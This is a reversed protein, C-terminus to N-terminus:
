NAEEETGKLMFDKKNETPQVKRWAPWQTLEHIELISTELFCQDKELLNSTLLM